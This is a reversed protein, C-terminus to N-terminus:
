ETATVKRTRFQLVRIKPRSGCTTAFPIKWTTPMRLSGGCLDNLQDRIAVIDGGKAEQAVALRSHTLHVIEKGVRQRVKELTAPITAGRM